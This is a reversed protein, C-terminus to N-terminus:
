RFANGRLLLDGLPHHGVDLHEGTPIDSGQFSWIPWPMLPTTSKYESRGNLRFHYPWLVSLLTVILFYAVERSYGNSLTYYISMKCHKLSSFIIIFKFSAFWTFYKKLEKDYWLADVPSRSQHLDALAEPAMWRLPLFSARHPFSMLASTFGLTTTLECSLYDGPYLSRAVGYDGIQTILINKIPWDRGRKLKNEDKGCSMNWVYISSLMSPTSPIGVRPPLISPASLHVSSNNCGLNNFM